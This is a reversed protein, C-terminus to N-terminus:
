PDEAVFQEAIMEIVEECAVEGTPLRVDEGLANIQLHRKPHGSLQEEHMDYRISLGGPTLYKYSYALLSDNDKSWKEFVLLFSGDRFVIGKPADGPRVIQPDGAAIIYEGRKAPAPRIDPSKSRLRKQLPESGLVQRLQWM